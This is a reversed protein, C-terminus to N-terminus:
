LGQYYGFETCTQWLWLRSNIERATWNSQKLQRIDAQYNALVCDDEGALGYTDEVFLSLRQLPTGLFEETMTQCDMAVLNDPYDGAYQVDEMFPVIAVSVAEAVAQVDTPDVPDCVHFTKKLSAGDGKAVM